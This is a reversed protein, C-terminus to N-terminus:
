YRRSKTFVVPTDVDAEDVTMMLVCSYSVKVKKRRCSVCALQKQSRRPTPHTNLRQHKLIDGHVGTDATEMVQPYGAYADTWNSEM